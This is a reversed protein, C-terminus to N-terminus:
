MTDTQELETDENSPPMPEPINLGARKAMQRTRSSGRHVPISASQKSM